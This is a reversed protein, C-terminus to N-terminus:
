PRGQHLRRVRSRGAPSPTTSGTSHRHADGHRSEDSPPHPLIRPRHGGRGAFLRWVRYGHRGRDGSRSHGRCRRGKGPVLRAPGSGQARVLLHPMHAVRPPVNALAAHRWSFPRLRQAGVQPQRLAGRGRHRRDDGDGRHEDDLEDEEGHREADPELAGHEAEEAGEHRDAEPEGVAQVLDDVEGLTVEAGGGGDQGDAQDAEGADVVEETQGGAEHRREEQRGGDLDQHHPAEPARGAEDEGHGGDPEGLEQDHQAEQDRAEPTLRGDGGGHRREGPVEGPM